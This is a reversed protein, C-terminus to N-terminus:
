LHQELFTTAIRPNDILYQYGQYRHDGDVYLPGESAPTAAALREADALSGWRDAKCQVFLVPTLSRGDEGAAAGSAAFAPQLARLPIGTIAGYATAVLPQVVAALPGLLDAAYGESYTTMTMPQVAIAARLNDTRALAYLIANAGMSFGIAGLRAADVEPRTQLYAIAGLLDEAETQGFTVPPHAASEGHNRQDYMLVHYGDYHLAHALRLLEVPTSGSLDAVIDGAADGLRNWGWGHVLIVTPNGGAVPTAPIFWGSLRVSDRAPFDVNEYALGMDTPACWLPQRTPAIMRRTFVAVIAATLGAAFGALLGLLRMVRRFTM